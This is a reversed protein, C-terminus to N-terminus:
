SIDEVVKRSTVETPKLFLLDHGPMFCIWVEMQSHFSVSSGIRKTIFLGLWSGIGKSHAVRWPSGFGTESSVFSSDRMLALPYPMSDLPHTWGYSHGCDGKFSM